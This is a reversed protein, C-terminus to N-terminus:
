WRAARCVVSLVMLSCKGVRLIVAPRLVMMEREKTYKGRGGRGRGSVAFCTRAIPKRRTIREQARKL